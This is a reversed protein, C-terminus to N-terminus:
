AVLIPGAPAEKVVAGKGNSRSSRQATRPYTERAKGGLSGLIGLEQAAKNNETVRGTYVRAILCRLAFIAATSQRAANPEMRSRSLM